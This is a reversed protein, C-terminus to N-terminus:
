SEGCYRRLCYDEIQCGLGYLGDQNVEEVRIVKARCKLQVSASLHSAPVELICRTLDGPHLAVPSFCFFGGSSLNETTTLFGIADEQQVFRLQWRVRSRTRRRREAFQPPEPSGAQNPM